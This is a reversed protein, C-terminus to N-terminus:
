TKKHSISIIDFIKLLVLSKILKNFIDFFYIKNINRINVKKLFFFVYLITLYIKVPLSLNYTMNQIGSIVYDIITSDINKYLERNKKYCDLHNLNYLVFPKVAVKWPSKM